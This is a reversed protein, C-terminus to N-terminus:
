YCVANNTPNIETNGACLMTSCSGTSNCEDCSGLTSDACDSDLVGCGCSCSGDGYYSLNCTWQVALCDGLCNSSNEGCALECVGNGCTPATCCDSPCTISSECSRAEECIGDGCIPGTECCDAPCSSSSGNEYFLSCMGDGCDDPCIDHLALFEANVCTAGLLFACNGIFPNRLCTCLASSRDDLSGADISASCADLADHAQCLPDNACGPPCPDSDECFTCGNCEPAALGMLYDQVDADIQAEVVAGDISSSCETTYKAQANAFCGSAPTTGDDQFKTMCQQLKTADPVLGKKQAKAHVKLLWGVKQRICKLKTADCKNQAEACDAGVALLAAAIMSVILLKVYKRTPAHRRGAHQSFERVCPQQARRSSAEYGVFGFVPAPAFGGFSRDEVAISSM